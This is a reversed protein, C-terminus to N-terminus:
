AIADQVALPRDRLAAGSNIWTLSVYCMLERWGNCAYRKARLTRWAAAV